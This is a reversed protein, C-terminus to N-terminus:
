FRILLNNLLVETKKVGFNKNNIKLGVSKWKNGLVM